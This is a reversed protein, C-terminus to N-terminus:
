QWKSLSPDMSHIVSGEHFSLCVLWVSKEVIEDTCHMLEAMFFCKELMYQLIMFRFVWMGLGATNGTISFCYEEELKGRWNRYFALKSKNWKVQSPTLCVYPLSFLRLLINWLNVWLIIVAVLHCNSYSIDIVSMDNSHKSFQISM